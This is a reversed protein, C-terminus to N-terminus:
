VFTFDFGNTSWITGNFARLRQANGTAGTEVYVLWGNEPPEPDWTAGNYIVINNDLGNWDGSGGVAVLYRDGALEGGPPATLADDIVSLMIMNSIKNINVDMDAAFNETDPDWEFELPFNVTTSSV